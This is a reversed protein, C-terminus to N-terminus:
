GVFGLMLPCTNQTRQRPRRLCLRHCAVALVFVVLVEAWAAGVNIMVPVNLQPRQYNLLHLAKELDQCRLSSCSVVLANGGEAHSPHYGEM